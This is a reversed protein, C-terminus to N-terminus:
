YSYYYFWHSQELTRGHLYFGNQQYLLCSFHSNCVIPGYQWWRPKVLKFANSAIVYQQDFCAVLLQIVVFSQCLHFTLSLNTMFKTWTMHGYLKSMSNLTDWSLTTLHGLIDCYNTISNPAHKYSCIDLPTPMCRKVRSEKQLLALHKYPTYPM